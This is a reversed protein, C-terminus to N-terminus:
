ISKLDRWNPGVKITIPFCMGGAEPIPKEMEEKCITIVDDVYNLDTDIVINDHVTLALQGIDEKMLANDVRVMAQLLVDSGSSQIPFNYMETVQGEFHKTRNFISKAVKLQEMKRLYRQIGPYLGTVLGQLREAEKKTCGFERAISGATRGYATGFVVAKARLKEPPTLERDGYCELAIIDHIRLGDDLDRQMKKDGCIAALMRVEFGTYDANVFVDGDPVFIHRTREPVNQLNPDRSSLRGTKTGTISYTTHIRGNVLRQKMGNLFTSRLKDLTKFEMIKKIVPHPELKGLTEANTKYQKGSKTKPLKFGLGTILEGLQQGSRINIDKSAFLEETHDITASIYQLEKAVTNLCVKVGRIQMRSLTHVLECQHVMLDLQGEEETEKVMEMAIRRTADADENNYKALEAATLKYIGGGKGGPKYYPIDTHVSTLYALDNPLQPALLHQGIKTDYWLNNTKVGHYMMFFVDFTGRQVIKPAPGEMIAKIMHFNKYWHFNIADGEKWSFSIGLPKHNWPVLVGPTEIDFSIPIRYDMLNDKIWQDAHRGPAYVEYWTPTLKIDPSDSHVKAKMMDAVVTSWFHQQGRMLYSPHFTPVVKCKHPIWNPTPLISGRYKTIGKKGTLVELAVDGLAIIVNPKFTLLEANLQDKCAIIEEPTPRRNGPSACKVINTVWCASRRIGAGYLLKDLIRGSGGVFPYGERDEQKGPNIGIVMITGFPPGLGQVVQKAGIHLDCKDCRM